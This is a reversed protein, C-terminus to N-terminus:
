RIVKFGQPTILYTTPGKTNATPIRQNGIELTVQSPNNIKIELKEKAVWTENSGKIIINQFILKGDIRVEVFVNERTLITTIPKIKTNKFTDAAIPSDVPKTEAVPTTQKRSIGKKIMNIFLLSLGIIAIILIIKPNLNSLASKIIEVIPLTKKSPKKVATKKKSLEKVSQGTSFVKEIEKVLDDEKLYEAYMKLFGKLYFEGIDTLNDETEIKRLVSPTLKTNTSVEELSLQKNQRLKKLTRVIDLLEM